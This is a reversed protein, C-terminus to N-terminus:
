ASQVIIESQGWATIEKFSNEVLWTGTDSFISGKPLTFRQEGDFKSGSITIQSDNIATIIGYSGTIKTGDLSGTIILIQGM